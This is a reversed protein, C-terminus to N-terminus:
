EFLRPSFSVALGDKAGLNSCRGSLDCGRRFGGTNPLTAPREATASPHWAMWREKGDSGVLRARWVGSAPLRELAVLRRGSMWQVTQWYADGAPLRAVALNTQRRIRSPSSPWHHQDDWAYQYVRQLGAAWAVLLLRSVYAPGLQDVTPMPQGELRAQRGAPDQAPDITGVATETSWLPKSGQGVAEMLGRFALIQSWAAEPYGELYFHFGVVDASQAGGLQMYRDFYDRHLYSIGPSVLQYNPDIGKLIRGAETQLKLLQEPSGLYGSGMPSSCADVDACWPDEPLFAPENWVEFARLSKGKYREGLDKVWNRWDDLNAPQVGCSRCVLRLRSNRATPDPSLWEPTYGGLVMLLDGKAATAAQVREDLERWDYRAAKGQRPAEAQIHLWQAHASDWVRQTGAGSDSFATEINEPHLAHTGFYQRPVATAPLAPAHPEGSLRVDDVWVKGQGAGLVMVLGNLEDPLLLGHTFGLANIPTWEPGVRLTRSGLDRYPAEAQRLVVTVTMAPEARVWASLKYRQEPQLRLPRVLQFQGRDLRVRLSRGSRGALADIEYTARVGTRWCTNDNWALPLEGAIGPCPAVQRTGGEFGGDGLLDAARVQAPWAWAFLGLLLGALARLVTLTVHSM